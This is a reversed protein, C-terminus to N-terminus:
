PSVGKLCAFTLSNSLSQLSRMGISTQAGTYRISFLRTNTNCITQLIPKLRQDPSLPHGNDLSASFVSPVPPSPLPRYGLSVTKRTTANSPIQYPVTSKVRILHIILKDLFTEGQRTELVFM